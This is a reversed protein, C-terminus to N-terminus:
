ANPRPLPSSTAFQLADWHIPDHNPFITQTDPTRYASTSPITITITTITTLFHWRNGYRQDLRLM